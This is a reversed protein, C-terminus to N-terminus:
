TLTPTAIQGYVGRMLRELHDASPHGLVEQRESHPRECKTLLVKKEPKNVKLNMVYLDSDNIEGGTMPTVNNSM